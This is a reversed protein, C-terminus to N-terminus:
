TGHAVDRTWKESTNYWLILRLDSATHETEYRLNKRHTTPLVENSDLAPPGGM